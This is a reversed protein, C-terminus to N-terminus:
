APWSSEKLWMGTVLNTKNTQKNTKNQKTKKMHIFQFTAEKKLFVKNPTEKKWIKKM